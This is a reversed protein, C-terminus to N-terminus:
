AATERMLRDLCAANLRRAAEDDAAETYCRLEPANGSPRLHVISQDAFTMRVGDTFDLSVPRGAVSGFLREAASARDEEDGTTLPRLLAQSQNTPFNQIRDSFTYRAPLKAVVGAVSSEQSAVLAMVIPLVADRTPLADLQRGDKVLNTALLFGGNAEYGCVSTQGAALADNMAAIVYPSGIRTRATSAFLGSKELLTNSSVPTVVHNCGTQWACIAALVDGRLWKGTEDALLPRDSDGDTSALADFGFEKAWQCALFQDEARVAETDVPIFADSRGLATVKAGLRELIMVLVDRGVSSHQYVGVQLGKLADIGFFDVYRDVYAATVDIVAELASPCVFEEDEDFDGENMRVIQSMMGAEDTKLVEGVPRYFKIGNRDDPIHSGTVMLSPIGRNIAFYAMTPTPVHGCNIVKGGADEVAKACAAMIRPTSARLDGAIAVEGGISFEGIEELYSLFGRTYGYCVRDTMSVVLGRAGSTGFAVKSIEMVDSVTLKKIM